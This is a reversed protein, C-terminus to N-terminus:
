IDRRDVEEKKRRHSIARKSKSKGCIRRYIQLLLLLLLLKLLILWRSLKTRGSAPTSWFYKACPWRGAGTKGPGAVRSKWYSGDGDNSLAAAAAAAAAACGWRCRGPDTWTKWWGRAISPTWSSKPGSASWGWGNHCCASGWCSPACEGYAGKWQRKWATDGAAALHCSDGGGERGAM